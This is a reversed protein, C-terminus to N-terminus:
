DVRRRKDKEREEGEEYSRRSSSRKDEEHRSSHGRSRDDDEYRRSSSRHGDREDYRSSSSRHEGERRSTREGRDRDDRSSREDRSSRHERGSSREREEREVKPASMSAPIPRFTTPPAAEVSAKLGTPPPALPPAAPVPASTATPLAGRTRWEDMLQRLQLYGLHMQSAIPSHWCVPVLASSPGKWWLPRRSTSRFRPYQPVALSPDALPQFLSLLASVAGCIDCVRLKQHGSAGSTDTLNQLEREKEQKESKLAEAKTLQQISEDVKGESGPSPHRETVDHSSLAQSTSSGLNEVEAMAAQYAGEIEGIERM